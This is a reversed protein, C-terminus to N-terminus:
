ALPTRWDEIQLGAFHQYDAPNRTVLILNNAAAVAAIQGDTYSPTLGNARLRAQERAHWVAARADYSLIILSPQIVELLYIEIKSRRSSPPLQLCGFWLEHWVVTAIVCADRHLRFRRIVNENPELRTAESVVNTDLLYHAM